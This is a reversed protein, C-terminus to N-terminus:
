SGCDPHRDGKPTSLEPWNTCLSESPTATGSRHEKVDQGDGRESRCPQWSLDPEASRRRHQLSKLVDPESECVVEAPPALAGRLTVPCSESVCHSRDPIAGSVLADAPGRLPLPCWGCSAIRYSADSVTERARLPEAETSARGMRSSVDLDVRERRPLRLFSRGPATEAVDQSTSSLAGAV